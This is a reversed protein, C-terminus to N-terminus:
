CDPQQGYGRHDRQRGWGGGRGIAQQTWHRHLSSIFHPYCVRLSCQRRCGRCVCGSFLICSSPAVHLRKGGLYCKRFRAHPGRWPGHRRSLNYGSHQKVRRFGHNWRKFSWAPHTRVTRYDLLQQGGHLDHGGRLHRRHIYLQHEPLFYNRFADRQRQICSKGDLRTAKWRWRASTRTSSRLNMFLHATPESSSIEQLLLPSPIQFRSRTPRAPAKAVIYQDKPNLASGTSTTEYPIVYLVSSLYLEPYYGNSAYYGGTGQDAIYLNGAGDLALGVASVYGGGFLVPTSSYIAAASTTAPTTVALEYVAGGSTYYINSKSDVAISTIPNALSTLLTAGSGYGGSAYEELLEDNSACCAGNTAIFVNNSADTAVASGGWYYSVAGLDGISISSAAATQPACNTIPIKAVNGNFGQLVFLNAKAADIWLSATGYSAAGLVTTAAGGGYPIEVVQGSGQNVAYINGCADLAVDGLGGPLGTAPVTSTSTAVVAPVYSNGQTWAPTATLCLTAAMTFWAARWIWHNKWDIRLM